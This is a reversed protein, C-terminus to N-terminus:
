ILVLFFGLFFCKQAASPASRGFPKEQTNNDLKQKAKNQKELERCGQGTLQLPLDQLPLDQLPLDQLPLDQFPVDQLPLDQLSM